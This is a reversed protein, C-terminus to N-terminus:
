LMMIMMADRLFSHEMLSYRVRRKEIESNFQAVFGSKTGYVCAHCSVTDLEVSVSLAIRYNCSYLIDM